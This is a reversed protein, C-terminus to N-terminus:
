KLGGFQIERFNDIYLIGNVAQILFTWALGAQDEGFSKRYELRSAPNSLDWTVELLEGGPLVAILISYTMGPEFNLNGSFDGWVFERGEYGDVMPFGNEFYIGFRRYQDTDYGGYNLHITFTPSESFSFDTIVGEGALFERKRWVGDWNENGIIELVGDNIDGIQFGWGDGGPDDFTDLNVVRVDNLFESAVDIEPASLNSSTPFATNTSISSSEKTPVDTTFPSATSASGTIPISLSYLRYGIWAMGIGIICIVMLIGASIIWVNSPRRSESEFAPASTSSRAGTTGKKIFPRKMELTQKEEIYFTIASLLANLGEDEDKRFDVYQRTVLRIPLSMDETGRVLIPFVRKQFQDSYTIERRVWESNKSDPSLIVIVVFANKIADEISEEWAATGPILKENDVWVKFGHDRLFFAIKRMTEDDRRSYSIFIPNAPLIPM